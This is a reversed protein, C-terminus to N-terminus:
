NSCFTYLCKSSQILITFQGYLITLDLCYLIKNRSFFFSCSPAHQLDTWDFYSSKSSLIFLLYFIINVLIDM